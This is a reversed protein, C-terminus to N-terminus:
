SRPIIALAAHQHSTVFFVIQRSSSMDAFGRASRKHASAASETTAKPDSAAIAWVPFIDKKM